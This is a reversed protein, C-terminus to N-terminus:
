KPTEENRRARLIEREHLARRSRADRSRVDPRTGRCARCKDAVHVPLAQPGHALVGAEARGLFAVPAVAIQKRLSGGSKRHGEVKGRLDAHIRVMRKAAPSTPRTPTEMADSASISISNSPMGSAPILVDIVILEVAAIKSASYTRTAFRWPASM